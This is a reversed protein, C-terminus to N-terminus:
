MHESSIVNDLDNTNWYVQSIAGLFNSSSILHVGDLWCIDGCRGVGGDLYFCHYDIDVCEQLLLACVITWVEHEGDDNTVFSHEIIHGISLALDWNCKTFINCCVNCKVNRSCWYSILRDVFGDYQCFM